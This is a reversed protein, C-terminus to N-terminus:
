VSETRSFALRENAARPKKFAIYIKRFDREFIFEMSFIATKVANELEFPYHKSKNLRRRKLRLNCNCREEEFVRAYTKLIQSESLLFALKILAVQGIKAREGRITLRKKALECEYKGSRQNHIILSTGENRGITVIHTTM